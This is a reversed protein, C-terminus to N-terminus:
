KKIEKRIIKGDKWEISITYAGRAKLGSIQGSKWEKPLAPLLVIEEEHSQLLMEAIGATVGFNGDIQFPPHNDLLNPLVSEKLLAKINSLAAEGAGLRAWLNIIWARSWGTHGGGFSLRREITRRAAEALEPTDKISIQTGPHLAFLQSIHRHGPDIEEYDENWEMIQGYRGVAIPPIRVLAKQMRDIRGDKTNLIQSAKICVNFLECIIQNDMSAGKCIVGTEGNPLRYENEPSLTPCTVLYEGDEVLYDLLFEASELMTPFRERLFQVDQTFAYHEWIHLCLWAAGMVWYTSSLCADQPATDGWIDTNHHAMFGGCGYMKQATKRGNERMREIHDLLPMHCESLNCTEALWYNMQANINITYKSGWMPIFDKNWIGQLNAPLSDERSSSILLYRGYQFLLEMLANDKGHESFAALREPMPLSASKCDDNCLKFIVRDFLTKYDKIHTVCLTEWDKESTIKLRELLVEEYRENRYSTEAALLLVVSDAEKVVISNGITCVSGGEAVVTVGCAFAVADAGGCQARLLITRDDLAKSVDVYSNYGPHRYIQESYPRYDWTPNGRSLQVHFSISGKTDSSLRVAIVGDPYSAFYERKMKIGSRCFTVEAMANEIDLFREYDCIEDEPGEFLLYLNGLPEYHRQEEPTGTLALMCLDQAEKIKGALILERIKPLYELASPNNREMPGGYWISDENLQLLETYPKGYVMAGLRGNGIPLAENWEKAESSFLIKHNNMSKEGPKFTNKKM